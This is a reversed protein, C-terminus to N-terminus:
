NNHYQSIPKYGYLSQELPTSTEKKINVLDYLYMKKDDAHRILIEISFLNYRELECKENYVPLAFRSNYRHWGYKANTKHKPSMNEKYRKNAAIKILEPINQAANAKAKALTGKLRSTDVSGSFEDPFDKEVYVTDKTDEIEYFKGIYRKVYKEVDNWNIKRKGKFLINNIVVIKRGSSDTIVNYNNQM